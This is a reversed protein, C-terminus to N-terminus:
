RLNSLRLPKPQALVPKNHKKLVRVVPQQQEQQLLQHQLQQLQQQIKSLTIQRNLQQQQQQAQQM